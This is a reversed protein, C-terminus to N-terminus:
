KRVSNLKNKNEVKEIATYIAEIIEPRLRDLIRIRFGTKPEGKPRGVQKKEKM